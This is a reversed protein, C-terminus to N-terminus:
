TGVVVQRERRITGEFEAFHAAQRITLVGKDVAALALTVPVNKGLSKMSSLTLACRWRAGIRFDAHDTRLAAFAAQVASCFGRQGGEFDEWAVRWGNEVMMMFDGPSACAQKLHEPLFQLCYISIERLTLQGDNLAACHAKGWGAFGGRIENTKAAFRERQLYDGIKPHSLVYGADSKGSGFVWRRLPELVRDFAVVGRMGYIREMLALLDADGLPGLAFALVSLIRDLERRDLVVGEEKWLKEQLAFWRKFYSDFGPKLLELDNRGIRTGKNGESWLDEAYYRVLLPEGETLEALREVLGPEQALVDVPAGLKVFVDAIQKTDLPNLEFTDVKVGRDWGLRKLWGDSNDDSVQWRASLLVRVNPPLPTPLVGADFSGELAEDIGDIVILVKPTGKSAVQDIQDRVAFHFGDGDRVAGTPV